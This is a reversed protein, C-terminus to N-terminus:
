KKLAQELDPHRPQGAKLIEMTGRASWNGGVPDEFEIFVDPDCKTDLAFGFHASEEIIGMFYFGGDIIRVRSRNTLFDVKNKGDKGM